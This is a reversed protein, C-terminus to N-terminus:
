LSTIREIPLTRRFLRALIQSIVTYLKLRTTGVKRKAKKIMLVRIPMAKEKNRRLAKRRSRGQLIMSFLQGNGKRCIIDFM